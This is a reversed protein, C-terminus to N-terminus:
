ARRALEPGTLVCCLPRMCARAFLPLSVGGEGCSGGQRRRGVGQRGGEVSAGRACLGPKPAAPSAIGKGKAAAGAAGAPAKKAAPPAKAKPTPAAAAPAAGGGGGGGGGGKAIADQILAQTKSSEVGKLQADMKRGYTGHLKVWMDVAVTRTQANSSNAGHLLMPMIAELGLGVQASPPYADVLERLFELRAQVEKFKKGADKPPKLLQQAM